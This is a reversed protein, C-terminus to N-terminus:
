TGRACIALAGDIPDAEDTPEPHLVLPGNTDSVETGVALNLSVTGSANAKVQFSIVAAAGSDRRRLM